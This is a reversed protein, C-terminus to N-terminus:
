RQALLVRVEGRSDTLSQVGSFRGSKEMRKALTPGQGLGVEFALWGGQRVYRPAEELLRMLIAVGFPGGDFALRPEHSAIESAMLPVKASSIYPPNCTLLDVKGHFREDDFPRLLDGSLFDTRDALGLQEANKRALSVAEESLDAAYVRSAAVHYAIALAVNGCGTCVDVVLVDNQIASVQRGVDVATRALLETEKRPILADSGALMELGLFHQRGSIHALPVGSLRREVLASLRDMESGELDPLPTQMALEASLNRGAALHWLARLTSDVSEEPKDPLLALGTTLRQLYADFEPKM